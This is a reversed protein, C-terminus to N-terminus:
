DIAEHSLQHSLFITIKNATYNNKERRGIM